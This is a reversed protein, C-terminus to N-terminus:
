NQKIIKLTGKMILKDSKAVDDPSTFSSALNEKLDLEISKFYVMSVYQSCFLKRSRRERDYRSFEIGFIKNLAIKYLQRNNYEKGLEAQACKVIAKRQLEPYETKLTYWDIDGHYDRINKSLTKTVVGKGVAELVMLRDDWWATIGAHSYESKTFWKILSSIIGKGKYMLIDGDKIEKRSILYQIYERKNRFSKDEMSHINIRNTFGM